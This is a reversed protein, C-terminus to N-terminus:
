IKEKLILFFYIIVGPVVFYVPGSIFFNWRDSYKVPTDNIMNSWEYTASMVAGILMLVIAVALLFIAFTTNKM